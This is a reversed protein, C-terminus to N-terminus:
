RQRLSLRLNSSIGGGLPGIVSVSAATLPGSRSPAAPAAIAMQPIVEVTIRGIVVQPRDNRDQTSAPSSDLWLPARDSLRATSPELRLITSQSPTRHPQPHRDNLQALEEAAPSPLDLPPIGLGSGAEAIRSTEAIAPIKAARVPPRLPPQQEAAAMPRDRQIDSLQSGSKDTMPSSFSVTSARPRDGQGSERSVPTLPDPQVGELVGLPRPREARSPPSPRDSALGSTSALTAAMATTPPTSGAIKRQVIVDSLGTIESTIRPQDVGAQGLDLDTDLDTSPIVSQGGAADMGTVGLRQDHAAIPSASRVFPQLSQSANAMQTRQILRNLYGSM